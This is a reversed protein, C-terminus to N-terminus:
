VASGPAFRHGAHAQHVPLMSVASLLTLCGVLLVNNGQENKSNIKSGWASLMGFAYGLCNQVYSEIIDPLQRWLLRLYEREVLRSGM